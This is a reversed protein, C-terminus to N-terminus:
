KVRYNRRKSACYRDFDATLRDIARLARPINKIFSCLVAFYFLVGFM